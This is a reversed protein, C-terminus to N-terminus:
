LHSMAFLFDRSVLIPVEIWRLAGAMLAAGVVALGVVEMRNLAWCWSDPLFFYLVKMGDLTPLPILNFFGLILNLEIARRLIMGLAPWPLAWVGVLVWAAVSFGAALVLNSCPGALAVLSFDRKPSKLGGVNVPTPKAYALAPLGAWLLFLPLLVSGLLDLHRFPDLSIRGARRATEDGRWSAALGHASEHFSVAFLLLPFDVAMGLLLKAYGPELEM